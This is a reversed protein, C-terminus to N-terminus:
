TLMGWHGEVVANLKGSPAFTATYRKGKSETEAGKSFYGSILIIGSQFTAFSDVRLYAPLELKAKTTGSFDTHFLFLYVANDSGYTLVRLEGSPTVNFQGFQYYSSDADSSPVKYLQYKSGDAAVEVDLFASAKRTIDMRIRKEM